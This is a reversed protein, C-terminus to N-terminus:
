IIKHQLTELYATLSEVCQIERGVLAYLSNWFSLNPKIKAIELNKKFFMTAEKGRRDFDLLLVVQSNGSQQIEDFAQEFTKGSTKVSFFPGQLGLFRFTEVDKKGEVVIPTGRASEEALEDIIQRIKELKDKLRTSM